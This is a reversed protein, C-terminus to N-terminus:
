DNNILMVKGGVGGRRFLDFARDIEELPFRAFILGDDFRLSGDGFCHATLTWEEGPFPASYSM